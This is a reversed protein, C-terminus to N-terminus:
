WLFDRTGDEREENFGWKIGVVREGREVRMM